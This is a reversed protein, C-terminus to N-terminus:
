WWRVGRESCVERWFRVGRGRRERALSRALKLRSALVRTSVPKEGPDLAAAAGIFSSEKIPWVTNTRGPANALAAQYRALRLTVPREEIMKFIADKDFRDIDDGNIKIIYEGSVIGKQAAMSGEDVIDIKIAKGDPFITPTIGLEGKEEFTVDRVM